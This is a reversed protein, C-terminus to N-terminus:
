LKRPTLGDPGAAALAGRWPRSPRYAPSAGFIYEATSRYGRRSPPTVECLTRTGPPPRFKTCDAWPAVRGYLAWSGNTTLGNLGSAAHRWEVYVGISALALNPPIYLPTLQDGALM